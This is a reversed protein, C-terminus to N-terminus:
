QGIATAVAEAIAQCCSRVEMEDPGEVMVRCVSQTGSYRVLVRGSGDLRKEVAKIAQQVSGLTDLDPKSRVAVNELVQPYARMLTAMASLPRNECQMAELLRLASLLGDGTTHDHLYITHGSDEGGLKAGSQRMAEMVFRDGVPCTEHEINMARLAEKLGLNSMVTSIVRNRDLAGKAKLLKAGITLIQDGSLVGGTEDVAILRDGDGDFALGVDAGEKVVTRSLAEVHESGCNQNINVGDPKDFLVTLEPGWTALVQAAIKSTAGHACDLVIRRGELTFKGPMAGRLFALYDDGATSLRKITGTPKERKDDGDGNETFIMSEIESEQGLSLKYGDPGFLKIGNDAYPNHSASIVVGAAAGHRPTLYAIAPTPLTGALLVDIGEACIGAAVAAELMPGSIRTDRGIIIASRTDPRSFFRGVARGIRVTMEPTLPYHNARARIGDTGFLTLEM